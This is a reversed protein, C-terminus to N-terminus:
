RDGFCMAQGVLHFLLKLGLYRSDAPHEDMHLRLPLALAHRGAPILYALLWLAAVIAGVGAVIYYPWATKANTQPQM